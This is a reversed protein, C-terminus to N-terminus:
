APYVVTASSVIEAEWDDASREADSIESLKVFKLSDLNNKEHIDSTIARFVSDYHKILGFYTVDNSKSAVTSPNAGSLHAIAQEFNM